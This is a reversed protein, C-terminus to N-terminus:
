ETASSASLLTTADLGAGGGHHGQKEATFDGVSQNVLAEPQAAIRHRCEDFVKAVWGDFGVGSVRM